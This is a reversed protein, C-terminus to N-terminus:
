DEGSPWHYEVDEPIADCPSIKRCEIGDVCQSLDQEEYVSCDQDWTGDRDSNLYDYLATM